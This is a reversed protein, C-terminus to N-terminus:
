SRASLREYASEVIELSSAISLEDARARYWERTSRRLPEGAKIAAVLAEAIAEPSAARALFGNIGPTVLEAAANDPGEVVVAPTGAAVAEVVVLGFGERVSPLLLCSAGAIGVGVEEEPVKGPLHVIQELGLTSVRERVKEREPGDGYIVCRLEPLERRAVAIVDPILAVRKEAIHRGAFVVLPQKAPERGSRDDLEASDGAYLGTLRVLPARHGQELLRREHLRSFVFSRDPLAICLRQIADGVWGGLRGLYERWYARSWVEFWDVVLGSNRRVRIALWAGVLSFYPFADSHVVDYRRGHRLLHWFVGIGFRIPPWIRRRGSRTYLEGGPSVAVVRFPTAPEAGDWQRRTLYTVEHREQLHKALDRYWREAGGVTNPFLCDYVIAIRV